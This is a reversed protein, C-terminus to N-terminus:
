VELKTTAHLRILADAATANEGGVMVPNLDLELLSSQHAQVFDQLRMCIAVLAAIDAKPRGRYGNLLPWHKLKRLAIHIEQEVLPMVLCVKDQVLEATVGGSGILLCFGVIPDRYVGVLMEVVSDGVMEELLVAGSLAHLARVAAVVEAHNSLNLQLACRETKHAIDPGNAKAVLPYRLSSISAHSPEATQLLVGKPTAIGFRMLLQKAQHESLSLSESNPKAHSLLPQFAMSPLEKLLCASLKIAMMAEEMGLLPVVGQAVLHEAVAEPMAENVTALVAAPKGTIQSAAAFAEAAINWADIRCRDDRPWDLMLLTLDFGSRMVEIFTKQLASRQGWSFTHYDLPNSVHVLPDLTAAVADRQAPTFGKFNLGHRTGSDAILAAEGGSCSMSAINTGDLEGFQHLLKLTELLQPISDVCPVGIRSLFASMALESGALSATHSVTIKAGTDSVGTKLAILPIRNQQAHHAAAAFEIPNAIGEIHLGIASVRPDQVMAHIIQAFGLSAQNGLSFVYALQLGRRLQTLNLAINGSQTIIAVGREVRKGGQQDPWLLAGDLYNVFGYCNPGLFPLGDAAACLEHELANGEKGVEAFGSAAVVAGGVGAARLTRMVEISTHRNVGLFVADPIAPLADISPYAPLGEFEHKTPHVAYLQGSYGLKRCQCIVERALYGGLVAISRPRLLPGLDPQPFDAM